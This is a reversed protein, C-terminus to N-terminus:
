TIPERLRKWAPLELMNSILVIGWLYLHTGHIDPEPLGKTLRAGYYRHNARGIYFSFGGTEPWYHQRYRSIAESCFRSVDSRRYNKSRLAYYLVLVLNFNNCADPKIALDLCLDILQEEKGTAGKEAVMFAITMKMAGSVQEATSPSAGTMFWAGNDQRYVSVQRFAEEILSEAKEGSDRCSESSSWWEKSKLLFILTGFHSGANWPKRWNLSHIYKKVEDVSSPVAKYPYESHSQLARLAALSQRSEARRIQAGFLNNFDRDVLCYLSRHWVSRRSILPDFIEGNDNQFSLIYNAISDNALEGDINLMYLIKTAFVSNGLGWREQFKLDGSLSYKFRGDEIPDRMREVFDPLGLIVTEIWDEVENTM